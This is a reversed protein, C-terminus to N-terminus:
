GQGSGMGKRQTWIGIHMFLVERERKLDELGVKLTHLVHHSAEVDWFFFGEGLLNVEQDGGEELREAVGGEGELLHLFEHRGNGAADWGGHVLGDLGTQGTVGTVDCRYEGLERRGLNDINDIAM